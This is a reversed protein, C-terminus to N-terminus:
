IIPFISFLLFFPCKQEPCHSNFLKSFVHSKLCLSFFLLSSAELDTLMGSSRVAYTSAKVDPSARELGHASTHNVHLLQVHKIYAAQHSQLYTCVTFGDGFDLGYVYKGGEFTVEQGGPTPLLLLFTKIYKILGGSLSITSSSHSPFLWYPM